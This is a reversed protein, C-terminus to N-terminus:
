NGLERTGHAYGITMSTTPGSFQISAQSSGTVFGYDGTISMDYFLRTISWWQTTSSFGDISVMCGLSNPFNTATFTLIFAGATGIVQYNVTIPGGAYGCVSMTDGDDHLVLHDLYFNAAAGVFPIEDIFSGSLQYRLISADSSTGTSAQGITLIWGETEREKM